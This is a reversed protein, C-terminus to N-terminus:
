KYYSVNLIAGPFQEIFQISALDGDYTLVGGNPIPMGVSSTPAVNDDRWRVAQGEITIIAVTPSTATGNIDRNPVTLKTASSLNTIQQYGFISTVDKIM